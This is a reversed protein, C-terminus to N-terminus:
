REPLVPVPEEIKGSKAKKGPPPANDNEFTEPTFNVPAQVVTSRVPENSVFLDKPAEPTEVKKERSKGEKADILEKRRAVEVNMPAQAIQQKILIADFDVMDGRATRIIRPM